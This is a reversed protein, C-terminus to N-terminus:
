IKLQIRSFVKRYMFGQFLDVAKEGAHLPSDVRFCTAFKDGVQREHHDVVLGIVPRDISTFIDHVLEAVRIEFVLGLRDIPRDPRDEVMERPLGIDTVRRCGKRVDENMITTFSLFM